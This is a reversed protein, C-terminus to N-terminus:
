APYGRDLEPEPSGLAWRRKLQGIFLAIWLGGIAIPLVVDLWHVHFGTPYFAPTVQWFLFLLTTFFVLVSVATIIRLSTRLRMSLLVLFPLAFQAAIIFLIVWQWGGNTRDVFWFVERPINGAWQILYQFYMMYSWGMVFALMVAGLDRNTQEPPAAAESEARRSRLILALIIIAFAESALGQGLVVILGIITSVWEPQLSMIWDFTAFSMTLIYLILGAASLGRLRTFAARDTVAEPRATLRTVIYVLAIWVTFYIVARIIFFPVNLYMSKYQLIPSAAVEAPRAWTYLFPLGVAIPIFLVLMLLITRSGAEVIRRITYAWKGGAVYYMMVIALSGLTLGIWFLYSFLYSQFFQGPGSLFFGVIALLSAVVGVILAPVQLRNMSPSLPEAQNM